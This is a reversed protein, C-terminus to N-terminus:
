VVIAVWQRGVRRWAVHLGPVDQYCFGMFGYEGGSRPVLLVFEKVNAMFLDGLRVREFSGDGGGEPVTNLRNGCMFVVKGQLLALNLPRQVGTKLQFLTKGHRDLATLGGLYPVYIRGTRPWDSEALSLREIM